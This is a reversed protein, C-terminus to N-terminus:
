AASVAIRQHEFILQHHLAANFPPKRVFKAYPEYTAAAFHSTALAHTETCAKIAADVQTVDPLVDALM